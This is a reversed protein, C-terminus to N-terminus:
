TQGSSCSPLVAPCLLQPDQCWCPRSSARHPRSAQLRSGPPVPGRPFTRPRPILTLDAPPHPPVSAPAAPGRRFSRDPLPSRSHHCPGPTPPRLPTSTFTVPRLPCPPRPPASPRGRGSAEQAGPSERRGPSRNRGGARRREAEGSM